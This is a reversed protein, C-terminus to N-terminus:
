ATADGVKEFQSDGVVSINQQLGEDLQALSELFVLLKNGGVFGIEGFGEDEHLMLGQESCTQLKQLFENQSWPRDGRMEVNQTPLDQLEFLMEGFVIPLVEQIKHLAYNVLILLGCDSILQLVYDCFM